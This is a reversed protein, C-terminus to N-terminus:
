SSTGHAPLCRVDRVVGDLGHDPVLECTREAAASASVMARSVVEDRHSAQSFPPVWFRVGAPDSPLTVADACVEVEVGAPLTGLLERGEQHALLVQRRRHRAVDGAQRHAPHAVVSHPSRQREDRRRVARVRRAALVQVVDLAGPAGLGLASDQPTWTVLDPSTAKIKKQPSGCIASKESTHAAIVSMLQSSIRVKHTAAAHFMAVYM